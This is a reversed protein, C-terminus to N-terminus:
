NHFQVRDNFVTNMQNLACPRNKMTVPPIALVLTMFFEYFKGGGGGGGGLLLLFLSIM